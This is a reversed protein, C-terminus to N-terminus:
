LGPTFVAYTGSGTGRTISVPHVPLQSQLQGHSQNQQEQALQQLSTFLSVFVRELRKGESNYGNGCDITLSLLKEWLNTRLQSAVM